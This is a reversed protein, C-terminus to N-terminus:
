RDGFTRMSWGIKGEQVFAYFWGVENTNMAGKLTPLHQHVYSEDPGAYLEIQGAANRAYIGDKDIKLIEVEVAGLAFASRRTYHSNVKKDYFWSYNPIWLVLMGKKGVVRKTWEDSSDIALEGDFLYNQVKVPVQGPRNLKQVVGKLLQGNAAEYFRHANDLRDLFASSPLTPEFHNLNLVANIDVLNEAVASLLDNCAEPSLKAKASFASSGFTLVFIIAIINKM